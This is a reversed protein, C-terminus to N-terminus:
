VNLSATVRPAGALKLAPAPAISKLDVSPAPALASVSVALLTSKL